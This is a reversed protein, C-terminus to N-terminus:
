GKNNVLKALGTMKQKSLNLQMLVQNSIDVQDNIYIARSKQLVVDYGKLKSVTVVAKNIASLVKQMSQNQAAQLDQTFRSRELQLDNKQTTIETQLDGQQVDTMISANRKLEDIKKQLAKQEVTIKKGRAAFQKRLKADIVKVVSYHELVKNIDVVAVNTAQATLAASILLLGLFVNCRKKM